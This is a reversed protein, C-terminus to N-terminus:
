TARDDHEFSQYGEASHYLCRITARKKARQAFFRAASFLAVMSGFAFFCRSPIETRSNGKKARLAFFPLVFFSQYPRQYPESPQGRESSYTCNDRISGGAFSVVIYVM